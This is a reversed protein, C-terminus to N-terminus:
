RFSKKTERLFAYTDISRVGFHNCMNPIKIKGRFLNSGPITEERQKASESTVVTLGKALAYAIVWPDAGNLFKTHHQPEYRAAAFNALQSYADTVEDDIERFLAAKNQRSWVALLDAGQAKGAIEDFVPICSCIQDAAALDLLADWFGPVIDFAYYNRHATIYIGSDLCYLM